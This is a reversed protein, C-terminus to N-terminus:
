ELEGEMEKAVDMIEIIALGYNQFHSDGIRKKARRLADKIAEGRIDKKRPCASLECEAVFACELRENQRKLREIVANKESKLSKYAKTLEDITSKQRNIFDVIDTLKIVTTFNNNKDTCYIGIHEKGVTDNLAKVIQEDNM